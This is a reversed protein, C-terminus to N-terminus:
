ASKSGRHFESVLLAAPDNRTNFAFSVALAHWAHPTVKIGMTTSLEPGHSWLADATSFCIQPAAAARPPSICISRPAFEHLPGQHKDSPGSRPSGQATAELCRVVLVRLHIRAAGQRGRLDPM